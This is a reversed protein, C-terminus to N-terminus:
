SPKIWIDGESPDEHPDDGVTIIKTPNGIVANVFSVKTDSGRCLCGIFDEEASLDGWDFVKGKIRDISGDALIRFLIADAGSAMILSPSLVVDTPKLKLLGTTRDFTLLNSGAIENTDVFFAVQKDEGSGSLEGGGLYDKLAEIMYYWVDGGELHYRKWAEHWAKALLIVQADTIM